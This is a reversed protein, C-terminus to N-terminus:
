GCTTPMPPWSSSHSRATPMPPLPPASGAPADKNRMMMTVEAGLTRQYFAIAEECRGNYFLYPQVLAM